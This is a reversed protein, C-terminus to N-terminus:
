GAPAPTPPLELFGERDKEVWDQATFEAVRVYYPSDSSKLVYSNDTSKSGVQLTYTTATGEPSQARLVLVASPADM